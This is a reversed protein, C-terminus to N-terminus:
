DKSQRSRTLKRHQTERTFVVQSLPTPKFVEAGSFFLDVVQRLLVDVM